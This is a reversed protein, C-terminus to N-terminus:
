KNQYKINNSVQETYSEVWTDHTGVVEAEYLEDLADEPEKLQICADKFDEHTQLSLRSVEEIGSIELVKKYNYRNCIAMFCGYRIMEDDETNWSCIKCGVPEKGSIADMRETYDELLEEDLMATYGTETNYGVAKDNEIEKQLNALSRWAVKTSHRIGDTDM